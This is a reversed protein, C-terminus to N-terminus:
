RDLQDGRAIRGFTVALSALLHQATLWGPTKLVRVNYSSPLLMRVHNSKGTKMARWSAFATPRSAHQWHSHFDFLIKRGVTDKEASSCYFQHESVGVHNSIGAREHKTRNRQAMRDM